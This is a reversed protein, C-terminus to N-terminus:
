RASKILRPSLRNPFSRQPTCFSMHMAAKLVMADTEDRLRETATRHKGVQRPCQVHEQAKTLVLIHRSESAVQMTPMHDIRKERLLTRTTKTDNNFCM